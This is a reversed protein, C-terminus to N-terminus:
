APKRLVAESISVKKEKLSRNLNSARTGFDSGLIINLGLAPASNLQANKQKGVLENFWAIAADSRDVWTSIEFGQVELIERLNQPSKLFSTSPGDAWPVPFYPQEGEEEESTGTGEGATVDYFSDSLCLRQTDFLEHSFIFCCKGLLLQVVYLQM